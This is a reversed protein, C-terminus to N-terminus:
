PCVGTAHLERNCADAEGEDWIGAMHCVEHGAAWRLEERGSPYQTEGNIWPRWCEVDGTHTGDQPWAACLVTGGGSHVRRQDFLILGVTGELGKAEAFCQLFSLMQLEAGTMHAPSTPLAGGGCGWSLALVALVALMVLWRQSSAALWVLVNREHDTM